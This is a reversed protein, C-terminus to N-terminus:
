KMLILKFTKIVKEIDKNGFGIHTAIRFLGNGKSDIEILSLQTSNLMRSVYDDIDEIPENTENLKNVYDGELFVSKQFSQSGVLSLFRTFISNKTESLLQFKNLNLVASDSPKLFSTEVKYQLPLTGQYIIYAIAILTVIGTFGFIFRSREKLSKTFKRLDIEDNAYHGNNLNDNNM